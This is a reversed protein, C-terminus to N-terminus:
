SDCGLFRLCILLAHGHANEPDSKDDSSQDGVSDQSRRSPQELAGATKRATREVDWNWAAPHDFKVLEGNCEVVHGLSQMRSLRGQALLLGRELVADCLACLLETVKSM